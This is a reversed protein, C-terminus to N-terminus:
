GNEEGATEIYKEEAEYLAHQIIRRADEAEAPLADLARDMARCLIYYMKQYDAM